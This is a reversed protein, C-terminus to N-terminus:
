KNAEKLLKIAKEDEVQKFNEYFQGIAFFSLRSPIHLCIVEDAKRKIMGVIESPAVPIAVVIKKPQKKRVLDITLMLTKGTAVGDDTIIVTKNKLDIEKKKGRYKINREKLKERINKIETNIHQQFNEGEQILDKEVIENELSVAGIAFEPEFPHGIKKTLIIDLKLNLKKALVYGLELGGRPIALVVISKKNKYKRLKPILQEAADFRDKFIM